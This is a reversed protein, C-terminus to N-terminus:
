LSIWGIVEETMGEREGAGSLLSSEGLASLRRDILGPHIVGGCPGLPGDAKQRQWRPPRQSLSSSREDDFCSFVEVKRLMFSPFRPTSGRDKFSSFIFQVYLLSREECLRM